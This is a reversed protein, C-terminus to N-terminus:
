RARPVVNQGPAAASRPSIVLHRRREAPNGSARGTRGRLRLTGQHLARRRCLKGQVVSPDSLFPRCIALLKRPWNPAQAMARSPQLSQSRCLAPPSGRGMPGTRRRQPLPHRTTSTGCCTRGAGSSPAMMITTTSIASWYEPSLESLAEDVVAKGRRRRLFYRETPTSFTWCTATPGARRWGTEDAHVVPSAGM